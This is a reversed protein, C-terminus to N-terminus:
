RARLADAIARLGREIAQEQRKSAERIEKVILETRADANKEREDDSTFFTHAPGLTDQLWRETQQEM